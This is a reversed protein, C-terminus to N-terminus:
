RWPQGHFPDARREREDVLEVAIRAAESPPLAEPPLLAMAQLVDNGTKKMAEDYLSGASATLLEHDEQYTHGKSALFNAYLLIDATDTMHGSADSMAGFMPTSGLADEWPKPKYPGYVRIDGEHDALEFGQRAMGAVFAAAAQLMANRFHSAPWLPSLDNVRVGRIPLPIKAQILMRKDVPYIGRRTVPLHLQEKEHNVTLLVM